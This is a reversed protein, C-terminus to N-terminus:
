DRSAVGMVREFEVEANKEMIQRQLEDLNHAMTDELYLPRKYDLAM